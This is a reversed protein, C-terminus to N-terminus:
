PAGAVQTAELRLARLRNALGVVGQSRANHGAARNAVALAQPLADGALLRACITGGWVDGCGTPDLFAAPDVAPVAVAVAAPPFAVAALPVAVAPPPVPPVAPVAARIAPRDALSSFATHAVYQVGRSGLTVFMALVGTGLALAACSDFDDALMRMEEENMQIFDFCACWAAADRLPQLSRRGDGATHWLLMHLDVYIPGSFQERIRQMTTLDVERGSLFNVYLADLQAAAILPQLEEVTWSPVGGSMQESRHEASLYRLESRNNPEPVVCLAPAACMGPVDSLWARADDAVDAGVKIFPVMEWADDLAAGLGSVGYAVGGWGQSVEYTPPPGHIVDCVLTSLVGV